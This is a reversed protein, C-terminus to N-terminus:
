PWACPGLRRRLQHGERLPHNPRRGNGRQSVAGKLAHVTAVSVGEFLQAGHERAGKAYAMCVDVPNAQGDEAVWMGGTIDSTNLLGLRSGIEDPKLIEPTLGAMNGIDAIRRLECMREETQALWFGGTQKYGTAQGTEAEIAPLLETAYVALKTLNMSARLPGIIGAAHWSTGSTLQHRELLIVDEAGLKALHYACSLGIVGGGVIVIRASKPLEAM